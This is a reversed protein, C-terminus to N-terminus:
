IYVYTPIAHPIAAQRQAGAWDGRSDAEGIVPVSDFGEPECGAGFALVLLAGM